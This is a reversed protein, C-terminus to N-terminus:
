EATNSQIRGEILMREVMQRRSYDGWKENRSKELRIMETIYTATQGLQVGNENKVVDSRLESYVAFRKVPPNTLLM